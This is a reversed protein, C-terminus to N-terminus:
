NLQLRPLDLSLIHTSAELNVIYTVGTSWPALVSCSTPAHAPPNSYADTQGNDCRVEPADTPGSFVTVSEAPLPPRFIQPTKESVARNHLDLVGEMSLWKRRFAHM